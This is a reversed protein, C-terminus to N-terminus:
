PTMAATEPRLDGSATASSRLCLLWLPLPVEARHAVEVVVERRVGQQPPLVAEPQPLVAEPRPLPAPFRRLAVQARVVVHVVVAVQPLHARAAQPEAVVVNRNHRWHPSIPRIPKQLRLM